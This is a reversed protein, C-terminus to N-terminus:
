LPLSEQTSLRTLTRSLFYSGAQVAQKLSVGNRQVEEEEQLARREDEKASSLELRSREWSIQLQHVRKSLRRIQQAAEDDELLHRERRKGTALEKASQWWTLEKAEQQRRLARQKVAERHNNGM